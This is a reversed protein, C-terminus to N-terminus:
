CSFGAIGSVIHMLSHDHYPISVHWANPILFTIKGNNQSQRALIGDNEAILHLMGVKPDKAWAVTEKIFDVIAREGVREATNELKRVVQEVTCVPLSIASGLTIVKKVRGPNRNGAVIGLMGGLSYGILTVGHRDGIAEEIRKITFEPALSGVDLFLSNVRYGMDVLLGSLRYVGINANLDRSLTLGPIVVIPGSDVYEADVRREPVQKRRLLMLETATNHNPRMVEVIGNFMRSRGTTVAM